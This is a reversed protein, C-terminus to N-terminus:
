NNINHFIIKQLALRSLTIKSLPNFLTFWIIEIFAIFDSMYFRGRFSEEKISIAKLFSFIEFIKCIESELRSHKSKEEM